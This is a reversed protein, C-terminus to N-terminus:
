LGYMDALMGSYPKLLFFRSEEAINEFNPCVHFTPSLSFRIFHPHWRHGNKSPQSLAKKQQEWVLKMHPTSELSTATTINTLEDELTSDLTIGHQDIENQMRKIRSELQDIM